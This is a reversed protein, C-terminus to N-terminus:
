RRSVARKARSTVTKAQHHAHCLVQINAPDFDAGGDRREVIHDAVLRAKSGCVGCFPQARKMKAALARWVTSTYFSEAQKPAMAFRSPAVSFRAPAYSLRSVAHQEMESLTLGRWGSVGSRPKALTVHFLVM